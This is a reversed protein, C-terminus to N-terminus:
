GPLWGVIVDKFILYDITTNSNINDKKIFHVNKLIVTATYNQNWEPQSEDIKSISIIAQGNKAILKKPKQQDPYSVDNCYLHEIKEGILLQVELGDTKGIEFTKETTSLNLKEKNANVSIGITNDSNVKYVFFNSCGRSTEQFTISTPLKTTSSFINNEKVKFSYITFAILIIAIIVFVIKTTKNM